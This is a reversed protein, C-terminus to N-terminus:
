KSASPLNYYEGNHKLITINDDQKDKSYPLLKKVNTQSEIM